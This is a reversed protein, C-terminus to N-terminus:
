LLGPGDEQDPERSAAEAKEIARTLEQHARSAGGSHLYRKAAVLVDEYLGLRYNHNLLAKGLHHEDEGHERLRAAEALAMELEQTTPKGM